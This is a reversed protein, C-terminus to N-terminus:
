GGESELAHVRRCRARGLPSDECIRIVFERVKTSPEGPVGVWHPPPQQGALPLAQGLLLWEDLARGLNAFLEAGSDQGTSEHTIAHEESQQHSAPVRRVAFPEPRGESAKGIRVAESGAQRLRHCGARQHRSFFSQPPSKLEETLAEVGQGRARGPYRLAAKGHGGSVPIPRPGSRRRM